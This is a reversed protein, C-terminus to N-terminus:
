VARLAAVPAERAPVTEPMQSQRLQHGRAGLLAMLRVGAAYLQPDPERGMLWRARASFLPLDSNQAAALLGLMAAEDHTIEIVGPRGIAIARRGKTLALLWDCFAARGESPGAGFAHVFERELTRCHPSCAVSTRVAWVLFHEVYRLHRLDRSSVSASIPAPFSM